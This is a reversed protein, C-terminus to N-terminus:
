TQQVPQVARWMGRTEGFAYDRGTRVASVQKLVQAALQEIVDLAPGDNQLGDVPFAALRLALEGAKSRLQEVKNEQHRAVNTQWPSTQSATGTLSRPATPASPEGTARSTSDSDAFLPYRNIM